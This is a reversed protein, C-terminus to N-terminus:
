AELEPSQIEAQGNTRTVAVACRSEASKKIALSNEHADRAWANNERQQRKEAAATAM